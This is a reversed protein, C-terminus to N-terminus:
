QASKAAIIGAPRAADIGGMLARLVSYITWPRENEKIQQLKRRTREDQSQFLGAFPHPLLAVAIWSGPSSAHIPRSVDNFVSLDNSYCRYEKAKDSDEEQQSSMVALRQCPNRGQEREQENVLSSAKQHPGLRFHIRELWNEPCGAFGCRIKCEDGGISRLVM